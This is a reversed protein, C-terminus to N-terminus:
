VLRKTTLTTSVSNHHLIMHGDKSQGMTQLKEIMFDWITEEKFKTNSIWM